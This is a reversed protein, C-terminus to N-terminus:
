QESSLPAKSIQAIFCFPFFCCWTVWRLPKEIKGSKEGSPDMGLRRLGPTMYSGLLTGDNSGIDIVLDGSGLSILSEIGAVKGQLHRVMSQNLGSRYGYTNGYLMSLDYNHALQVLGCDSCKVLALPGAPVDEAITKPFIGTLAQFGLDLVQALNKGYCLRCDTIQKYM